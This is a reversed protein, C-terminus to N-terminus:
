AGEMLKTVHLHTVPQADDGGVLVAVHVLEAVEVNSGVVLVLALLLCGRTCCVLLLLLPLPQIFFGSSTDTVKMQPTKNNAVPCPCVRDHRCSM